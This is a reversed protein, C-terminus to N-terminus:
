VSTQGCGCMGPLLTCCVRWPSLYALAALHKDECGVSKLLHLGCAAFSMVLTSSIIRDPM